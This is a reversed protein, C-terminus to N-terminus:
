DVIRLEAPPMTSPIDSTHLNGSADPVVGHQQWEAIRVALDAGSNASTERHYLLAMWIPLPPFLIALAIITAVVLAVRGITSGLDLPLLWILAGFNLSTTVFLMSSVLCAPLQNIFLDNSREFCKRWSYPEQIWPQLVYCLSCYPMGIAIVLGGCGSLLIFLMLIWSQGQISLLISIVAIGVIGPFFGISAYIIQAFFIYVLAFLSMGIAQLPHIQLAERLEVQRGTAATIAARSLGGILYMFMVIIPALGVALRLLTALTSEAWSVAVAVLSAVIAMPALWLAAILVFRAFHRRYLWLGEDLIALIPQYAEARISPLV